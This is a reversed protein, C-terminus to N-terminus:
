IRKLRRNDTRATITPTAATIGALEKATVSALEPAAVTAIEAAGANVDAWSSALGPASQIVL